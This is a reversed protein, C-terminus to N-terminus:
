IAAFPLNMGKTRFIVFLFHILYMILTNLYFPSYFIGRYYKGEDRGDGTADEKEKTDMEKKKTGEEKKTEEAKTDDEQKAEEEKTDDEKKAEKKTEQKEKM